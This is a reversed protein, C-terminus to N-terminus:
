TSLLKVNAQEGTPSLMKVLEGNRGVDVRKSHESAPDLFDM